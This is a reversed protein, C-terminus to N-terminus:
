YPYHSPSSSSSEPNPDLCLCSPKRKVDELCGRLEMWGGIGRTGSAREGPAFRSARSASWEGGGSASALVAYLWVEMGGAHKIAHAPVKGGSM